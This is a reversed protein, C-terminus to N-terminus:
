CDAVPTTYLFSMHQNWTMNTKAKLNTSTVLVLHRYLFHVYTFMLLDASINRHVM